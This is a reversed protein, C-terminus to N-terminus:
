GSGDLYTDFATRIPQRRRLLFQRNWAHTIEFFDMRLFDQVAQFVGHHIRRPDPNFDDGVIMGDPKLKRALILLQELTNRYEHGADLYAWDLVGEEIEELFDEVMKEVLLCETGAFPAVRRETMVKAQLTTLRGFDTYEGWDPYVDDYLLSWGDILYLKRPAVIRCIMQSFDGCFVGLEAGVSHKPLLHLMCSRITLQKTDASPPVWPGPRLPSTDTM